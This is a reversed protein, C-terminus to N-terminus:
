WIKTPDEAVKRSVETFETALAEPAPLPDCLQALPTWRNDDRIESVVSAPCRQINRAVFRKGRVPQWQNGNDRQQFTLPIKAFLPLHDSGDWDRIVRAKCDNTPIQMGNVLMHDIASCRVGQRILTRPNGQPVLAVM